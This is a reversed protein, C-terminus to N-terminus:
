RVVRAQPIDPPPPPPKPKAPERKVLVMISGVLGLLGSILLLTAGHTMMREGGARVLERDVRLERMWGGLALMAASLSFLAAFGSLRGYVLSVFGVVLFVIASIFYFPVPSIANNFNLGLAQEMAPNDNLDVLYARRKTLNIEEWDFGTVIRHASVELDRHQFFPEFFGIVGLCGAVLVVVKM